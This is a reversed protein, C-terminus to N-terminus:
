QYIIIRGGNEDVLFDDYNIILYEDGRVIFTCGIEMDGIGPDLNLLTTLETNQFPIRTNGIYQPQLEFTCANTQEYDPGRYIPVPYPDNLPSAIEQLNRKLPQVVYNNWYDKKIKDSYVTFGTYDDTMLYSGPKGKRRAM